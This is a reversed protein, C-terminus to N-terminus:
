GFLLSKEFKEYRENTNGALRKNQNKITQKNQSKNYKKILHM